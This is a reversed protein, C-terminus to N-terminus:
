QQRLLYSARAQWGRGQAGSQLGTTYYAMGLMTKERLEPRGQFRLGTENHGLSHPEWGLTTTLDGLGGATSHAHHGM